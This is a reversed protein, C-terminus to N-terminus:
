RRRSVVEHLDELIDLSFVRGGRLTDGFRNTIAAGGEGSMWMKAARPRRSPVRSNGKGGKGKWTTHLTEALLAATSMTFTM